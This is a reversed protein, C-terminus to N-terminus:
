GVANPAACAIQGTIRASASIGPTNASPQHTKVRSAGRTASFRYRESCGPWSGGCGTACSSRPAELRAGSRARSVDLCSRSVEGPREPAFEPEALPGRDGVDNLADLLDLVSTEEGRGINVPGTM